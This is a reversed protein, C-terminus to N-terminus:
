AINIKELIETMEMGKIDLTNYNDVTFSPQFSTEGLKHLTSRIVNNKEDEDTIVYCHNGNLKYVFSKEAKEPQQKHFLKNMPDVAYISLRPAYQKAWECLIHTSIGETLIDKDFEQFQEILKTKSLTKFREEGQLAYLLGDIVCVGENKDVTLKQIGLSKYEFNAQKMRVSKILANTDGKFITYNISGKLVDVPYGQSSKNDISAKVITKIIDDYKGNSRKNINFKRETYYFTKSPVDIKPMDEDEIEYLIFNVTINVKEVTKNQFTDLIDTLEYSNYNRKPKDAKWNYLTELKKILDWKNGKKEKTGTIVRESVQRETLKKKSTLAKELAEYKTDKVEAESINYKEAVQKILQKKLPKPVKKRGDLLSLYFDKSKQSYGEILNFKEAIVKRLEFRNMNTYLKEESM